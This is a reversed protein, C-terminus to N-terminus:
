STSRAPSSCTRMAGAGSARAAVDAAAVMLQHLRASTERMERKLRERIEGMRLGAYNANIFNAVQELESPSYLHPTAIVRNQVENDAFVLIVLM